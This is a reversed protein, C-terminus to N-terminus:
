IELRLLLVVARNFHKEIGVIDYLRQSIWVRGNPRIYQMVPKVRSYDLYLRHTFEMQERNMKLLEASGVTSLTARLEKRNTWTKTKCGYADVAEAVTQIICKVKPGIM